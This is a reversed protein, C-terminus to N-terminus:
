ADRYEALERKLRAIDARAEDRQAKYDVAWSRQVDRDGLADTYAVTLDALDRELREIVAERSTLAADLADREREATVLRSLFWDFCVLPTPPDPYGLAIGARRLEDRIITIYDTDHFSAM